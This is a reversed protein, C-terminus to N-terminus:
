RKVLKTDWRVPKRARRPCVPSGSLLRCTTTAVSASVQSQACLSSPSGCVKSCTMKRPECFYGNLPTSSLSAFLDSALPVFAQFSPVLAAQVQQGYVGIVNEM